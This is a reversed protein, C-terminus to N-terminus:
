DREPIEGEELSTGVAERGAAGTSVSWTFSMMIAVPPGQGTVTRRWTYGIGKHSEPTVLARGSQGWNKWLADMAEGHGPECRSGEDKQLRPSSVPLKPQSGLGKKGMPFKPSETPEKEAGRVGM